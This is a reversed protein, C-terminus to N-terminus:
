LKIKFLLHIKFYVVRFTDDSGWQFSRWFWPSAPSYYAFWLDQTNVELLFHLVFKVVVNKHSHFWEGFGRSSKLQTVSWPYIHGHTFQQLHFTNNANM